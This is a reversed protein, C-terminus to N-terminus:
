PATVPDRWMLWIPPTDGLEIVETVRFGFREYYPVNEPKQTELYAPILERDCEDLKIALLAGGFGRGQWRPDIGLLPLYWHPERPHRREVEALLRLGSRRNRGTLLASACARTIRNERSRTRPMTGPQLWSASGAVVGDHRAVWVEGHDAADRLLAGLFTPLMRHEHIVDRAFHGFLPDPWFARSTTAIAMQLDAPDLRTIEPESM